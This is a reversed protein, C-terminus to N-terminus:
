KWFERAAARLEARFANRYNIMVQIGAEAPTGVNEPDVEEDGGIRELEAALLQAKTEKPLRVMLIDQGVNKRNLRIEIEDATKM